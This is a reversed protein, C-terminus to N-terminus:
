DIHSTISCKDFYQHRDDCDVLPASLQDIVIDMGFGKLKVDEYIEDLSRGCKDLVKRQMVERNEYIKDITDKGFDWNYLGFCADLNMQWFKMDIPSHIVM